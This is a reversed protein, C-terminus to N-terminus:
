AVFPLPVWLIAPPNKRDQEGHFNNLPRMGRAGERNRRIHNEVHRNDIVVLIQQIAKYANVTWGLWEDSTWIMM